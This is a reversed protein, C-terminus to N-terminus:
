TKKVKEAANGSLLVSNEWDLKLSSDHFAVFKKVKNVILKRM